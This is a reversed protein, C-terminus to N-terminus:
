TPSILKSFRRGPESNMALIFLVDLAYSPAFAAAPPFILQLLAEMATAFWPSAALFWSRGHDLGSTKVWFYIAAGTMINFVIGLYPISGLLDGMFFAFILMFEGAAMNVQPRETRQPATDRSPAPASSHKAQTLEMRREEEMIDAEQDM